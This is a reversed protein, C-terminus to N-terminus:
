SPRFAPGLAAKLPELYPEFNRWREALQEVGAITLDEPIDIVNPLRQGNAPNRSVPMHCHDRLWIADLRSTKVDAWEIVLMDDSHAVSTIQTEIPPQGEM